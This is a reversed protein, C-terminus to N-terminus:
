KIKFKPDPIFMAYEGHYTETDQMNFCLMFNYETFVLDNEKAYEILEYVEDPLEDKENLDSFMFEDWHGFHKVVEIHPFIYIKM